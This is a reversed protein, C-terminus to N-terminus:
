GLVLQLFDAPVARFPQPLRPHLQFQQCATRHARSYYPFYFVPVGGIYVWANRARVYKGPVITISSAKLKVAPDAIDDTTIFASEATYVSNSLDGHLHKGSAFVPSKGTRFVETEMARTKFNYLIHEGVWVQEGQQIRVRGDAIVEGMDQSGIVSDAVLVTDRWRVTVGNTASFWGTDPKYTVSGTDSQIDITEEKQDQAFALRTLAFFFLLGPLIVRLQRM